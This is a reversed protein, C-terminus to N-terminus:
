EFMNGQDYIRPRKDLKTILIINQENKIKYLARYDGIRIRFVKDGEHRGIFKADPPVSDNELKKLGLKIREQLHKDLSSYYKYAKQSLEVAYM